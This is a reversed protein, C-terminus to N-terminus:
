DFSDIKKRLENNLFLIFSVNVVIKLFSSETFGLLVCFIILITLGYEKNKLCKHMLRIYLTCMLVLFLLGFELLARLYGSDLFYMFSEDFEQGFLTIKYKKMNMYQLFIRGSLLKNLSLIFDSGSSYQLTLYVTLLALMPALFIIAIKVIKLNFVKPYIKSILTFIFLFVFSYGATRSHTISNVFIFLIFLLIIDLRKLNKFKISLFEIMVLYSNMALTNPHQFGFSQKYTQYFIGDVNPLIGIIFLFIISIIWFLKLKIDFNLFKKININRACLIFLIIIMIEMNMVLFALIILLTIILFNKLNYKLKILQIALLFIVIYQFFKYYAHINTIYKLSSAVFLFYSSSYLIWSIYFLINKKSKLM